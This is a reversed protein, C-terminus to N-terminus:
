PWSWWGTEPTGPRLRRWGSESQTEIQGQLQGLPTTVTHYALAAVGANAAQLASPTAAKFDAIITDTLAIYADLAQGAQSLEAREGTGTVLTALADSDARAATTSQALSQLDASPDSHSTFDYAVSNAAVAVGAADLQYQKCEQTLALARQQSATSTIQQSALAWALGSTIALLM